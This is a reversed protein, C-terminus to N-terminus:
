LREHIEQGPDSLHGGHQPEEMGGSVSAVSSAMETICLGDHPM